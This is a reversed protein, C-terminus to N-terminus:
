KLGIFIGRATGNLGDVQAKAKYSAVKRREEPQPRLGEGSPDTLGTVTLTRNGIGITSAPCAAKIDCLIFAVIRGLM